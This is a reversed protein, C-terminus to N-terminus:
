SSFLNPVRGAELYFVGDTNLMEEFYFMPVERKNIFISGKTNVNRKIKDITEEKRTEDM